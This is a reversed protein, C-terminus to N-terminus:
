LKEESYRLGLKPAAERWGARQAEEFINQREARTRAKGYREVYNGWVTTEMVSGFSVERNLIRDEPWSKGEEPRITFRSTKGIVVMEKIDADRAYAIDQASFPADSNPHTHIDREAGKIKDFEENTLEIETATGRKEVLINGDKDLTIGRENKSGRTRAVFSSENASANANFTESREGGGGGGGSGGIEGPRGEHDFNGSGEGGKGKPAEVVPQSIPAVKGSIPTPILNLPVLLVDGNPLSKSKGEEEELNRHGSLILFNLNTDVFRNRDTM